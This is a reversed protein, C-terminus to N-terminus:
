ASGSEGGPGKKKRREPGRYSPDKRRRRDPGFYDATKVFPRSTELIRVMREYVSAPSIPKALFENVGCDRAAMVSHIDTHATLMIIPVYPNPSNTDTRMRRVLQPGNVPEMEWDIIAIDVATQSFIQYGSAGDNAMQIRRIKLANLVSHMLKRTFENDDVVLVSINSLDYTLGRSANPDFM